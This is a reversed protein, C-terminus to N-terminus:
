EGSSFANHFLLSAETFDFKFLNDRINNATKKSPQEVDEIFRGIGFGSFYVFCGLLNHKGRLVLTILSDQSM